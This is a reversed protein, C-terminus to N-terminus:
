GGNQRSRNSKRIKVLTGKKGPIAGRVLMLNQDEIVQVVQLNLVTVRDKGMKGAMRMGKFVRSPYSSQGISGPARQRDSQGHTAQAGSFGHRRMSGQFGLGKSIGTVDVKEGKKFIDIKIEDGVKIEELRGRIERLYRMPELGAKEFHGLEPKNFLRQHKEGFGLQVADYGDKDTTKIAVVRCPGAEIVSVPVVRGDDSYIQTMGIKKGILEKMSVGNDRRLKWM